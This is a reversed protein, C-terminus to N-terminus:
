RGAKEKKVQSSINEVLERIVRKKDDSLLWYSRLIAKILVDDSEQIEMLILNLGEDDPLPIFMEGIGSRLWDENVNFERCISFIVADSPSRIGTEYGTITNGKVGVKAGFESQTLGLNKRITKIREKM